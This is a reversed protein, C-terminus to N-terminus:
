TQEMPPSLQPNIHQWFVPELIADLIDDASPHEAWYRPSLEERILKLGAEPVQARVTHEREVSALHKAANESVSATYLIHRYESIVSVEFWHSWGDHTVVVSFERGHFSLFTSILHDKPQEM